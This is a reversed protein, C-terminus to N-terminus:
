RLDALVYYARSATTIVQLSYHSHYWSTGYQGALFKYTYSHGPAIPCQTVGNVGDNEVNNLMRLGHWHISTGNCTLNNNITVEVTDGWCARLWPGPFSPGEQAIEDVLVKCQNNTCGDPYLTTNTVTLNYRRLIGKPYFHEYDTHTNYEPLGSSKNKPRLWCGRNDDASCPEYDQLEPYECFFQHHAGIDPPQFYPHNRMTPTAPAVDALVARFNTNDQDGLNQNIYLPFRFFKFFYLFYSWCTHIDLMIILPRNLEETAYPSVPQNETSLTCM